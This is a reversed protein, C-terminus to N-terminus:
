TEINCETLLYRTLHQQIVGNLIAPSPTLGFVLRCFRYAVIGPKKSMVDDFWLFRLMDRDSLHIVIQHFAKEIDAVMGIPYCRFKILIDFINLTLNPGKDLCDNLSLHDPEKASGDFVIRLKTTQKDERIV